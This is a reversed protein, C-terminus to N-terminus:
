QPLQNQSQIFRIVAAVPRMLNVPIYHGLEGDGYLEWALSVDQYVPIGEREATQIIVKAITGEGKAMIMPLPTEDEVYRLAIACHTPNTVLVSSKKVNEQMDSMVLERHLQKRHGKVEPNGETEKYEQKLDELSMKLQKMYFHRQFLYDIIAIPVFIITVIVTLYVLASLGVSVVCNIGCAPSLLSDRLLHFAVWTITSALIAIKLINLGLTLLNKKSFMQKLNNLANLSQLGQTLKAGSFVLGVQFVNAFISSVIGIGYAMLSIFAITGIVSLVIEYSFESFTRGEGLQLVSLLIKHVRIFIEDKLALLIGGVAVLTTLSVIEKSFLFQGKKRADRIKKPTPPETKEAM